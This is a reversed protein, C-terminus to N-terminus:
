ERQINIKTEAFNKLIPIMTERLSKIKESAEQSLGDETRQQVPVSEFRQLMRSTSNLTSILDICQDQIDRRIANDLQPHYMYLGLQTTMVVLADELLSLMRLSSGTSSSLTAFAAGNSRTTTSASANATGAGGSTPPSSNSSVDQSGTGNLTTLATSSGAAKGAAAPAPANFSLDGFWSLKSNTRSSATSTSSALNADKQNDDDGSDKFLGAAGGTKGELRAEWEKLSTSAYQVLDFMTGISAPEYVPTNSIPAITTKRIPWELNSKTFIVAPDTWALIASLINRIVSALKSEITIALSNQSAADKSAERSKHEAKTIPLVVLAMMNPHTFLYVAHQLIFLSRDFFARLLEGGGLVELRSESKSLEYFLMTIREMEELKASTMPSHTSTELGKSIQNGYLQIFGILLQMFADSSNMNRLLSTVTALIMCWAHHWDGRDGHVADRHTIDGQQLLPSLGNHTVMSMVGADCLYVAMEPVNALALLFNLSGEVFSPRSDFKVSSFSRSCLQLNVRFVDLNRLTPIWLTPHPNWIPHCLEELLALLVVINESNDQQGLLHSESVAVFCSAVLPLILIASKRLLELNSSDMSSLVEKDHLARYCYLLTLLLPQHASQDQVPNQISELIGLDPSQLLKQLKPVIAPFLAAMNKKDSRTVVSLKEIVAQLLMCCHHRAIRLVVSGQTDRQIHDILTDVCQYYSGDAGTSNKGGWVSAGLNSAIIEVFFRWAALRLMESHVTSWNLNVHYLARLFAHEVQTGRWILKRRAIELDLMFSEGAEHDTDYIEAWRRVGLKLHDFPTSIMQSLERLERQGSVHCCIKPITENWTQFRGQDICEKILAKLGTPLSDVDKNRVGKMSSQFHIALGLIRLAHAVSQQEACVSSVEAVQVHENGNHQAAVEPWEVMEMKTRTDPRSLLEGLDKWFSVDEVLSLILFAHDKANQFLVDFFHLAQPVISPAEKLLHKHRKLIDRARILISSKAVEKQQSELVTTSPNVRSNSLFLAALGPQTSLTITIFSWLAIRYELSQHDDGVRDVITSILHQAQETTGFYGVFSPRTPWEATLSCLLTLVNTALHAVEHGCSFDNYGALVHILPVNARGVTRDVLYVELFSPPGGQIKRRCLLSKVFDLGQLVMVKILHMEQVRAYKSFYAAMDPGTGVISVLPLALQKGGDYLFNKILYDQLTKTGIYDEPATGNILPLDNLTRNFITLVKSAISFRDKLNLYHWSDYNSFIENQLYALCPYLVESKLCRLERSDWLENDQANRSLRLILDLFALTVSYNGQMCETGVLITYALGSTQVRSAGTFQVTTTIISPLFASQKLLLWVDQVYSDCLGSLCSVCSAIVGLPTKQFKSCQDLVAFITPIISTRGDREFSEMIATAAARKSFFAQLFKMIAEVHKIEVSSDPSYEDQNTLRFSELAAYILDWGSKQHNWQIIHAANEGSILHGTMGSPLLMFPRGPKFGFPVEDRSRVITAGTEPHSHVEVSPSSLSIMQSLSPLNQFYSVAHNASEEGGTALASLLELMPEIKVPFRGRATELVELTGQGLAPSEQWILNCLSPEDKVLDALCSVLKEFNKIAKPRHDLLVLELFQFFMDKFASGFASSSDFQESGFSQHLYSFVDLTDMSVFALQGALRRQEAEDGLGNVMRASLVSSWALIFPGLEQQRDAGQLMTNITQVQASSKFVHDKDYTESLSMELINGLDLSAISLVMCLLRLDECLDVAEVKFRNGYKQQKGFNTSTLATLVIGALNTRNDTGVVALTIATEILASQENISQEIWLDLYESHSSFFEPAEESAVTTYQTLLKGVLTVSQSLINDVASIREYNPNTQDNSEYRIIDSVLSIAATREKWLSTVAQLVVAPTITSPVESTKSLEEVAKLAQLEDVKVVDSLRKALNIYSESYKEGKESKATAMGTRSTSSPKKFYDLGLQIHQIRDEIATKLARWEDESVANENQRVLEDQISSFSRGIGPNSSTSM